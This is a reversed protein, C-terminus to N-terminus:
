RHNYAMHHRWTEEEERNSFLARTSREMEQLTIIMASAFKHPEVWHFFLDMRGVDIFTINPLVTAWHAQMIVNDALDGLAMQQFGMSQITASRHQYRSSPIHRHRNCVQHWRLAAHEGRDTFFVGRLISPVHTAWESTEM